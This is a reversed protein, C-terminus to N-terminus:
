GRGCPALIPTEVDAHHIPRGHLVGRRGKHSFTDGGFTSAREPFLRRILPTPRLALTSLNAGWIECFGGIEPREANKKAGREGRRGSKGCLGRWNREGPRRTAVAPQRFPVPAEAERHFTVTRGPLNQGFTKGPPVLVGAHRVSACLGRRSRLGPRRLLDRRCPRRSLRPATFCAPDSIAPRAAALDCM